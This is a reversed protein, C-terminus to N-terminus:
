NVTITESPSGAPPSGAAPGGTYAPGATVRVPRIRILQSAIFHKCSDNTHPKSSHGPVPIALFLALWISYKIKLFINWKTQMKKRIKFYIQM